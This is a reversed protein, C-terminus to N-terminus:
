PEQTLLSGEVLLTILGDSLSSSRTGKRKPLWAFAPFPFVAVIFCGEEAPEIHFPLTTSTRMAEDNVMSSRIGTLIVPATKDKFESRV